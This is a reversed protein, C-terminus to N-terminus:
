CKDHLSILKQFKQTFFEGHHLNISDNIALPQDRQWGRFFGAKANFDLPVGCTEQSNLYTFLRYHM